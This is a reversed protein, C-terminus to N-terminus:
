VSRMEPAGFLGRPQILLIVLLLVFTSAAQYGPSLVSGGFAEALGLIWGAILAGRNNGIGGVAAAEFGKVLLSPGLQTSAYMTPSALLGTMAAFGAGLFFSWRSLADPNIGRLLAADRDEAVARVAKGARTRYFQEIGLIMVGTMVILALQYSSTRMGALMFSTVSFPWPPDVRIPDPGWVHGVLNDIILSYALTSIIWAHSVSSRRVVPAVAVVNEALGIVGVLGAAALLAAFWPFGAAIASASTMAGLMVLDGQAFNFVNTPRYLINFGVAVLAYLSGAALGSPIIDLDM